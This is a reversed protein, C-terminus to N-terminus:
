RQSRFLAPVIEDDVFPLLNWPMALNKPTELKLQSILDMIMGRVLPIYHQLTRVSIEKWRVHWRKVVAYVSIFPELAEALDSRGAESLAQQVQTKLETAKALRETSIPAYHYATLPEIVDQMLTLLPLNATRAVESLFAEGNHEFVGELIVGDMLVYWYNAHTYIHKYVQCILFSRLPESPPQQNITTLCNDVFRFTAEMNHAGTEFLMDLKPANWAEVAEVCEDLHTDISPRANRIANYLLVYVEPLSPFHAIDAVTSLGRAVM